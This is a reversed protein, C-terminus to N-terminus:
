QRDTCFCGSQAGQERFMSTKATWCNMKVGRARCSFLLIGTREKASNQKKHTGAMQELAIVQVPRLLM